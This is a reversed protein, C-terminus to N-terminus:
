PTGVFTPLSSCLFAANNRSQIAQFSVDVRIGDTQAANNNGSGNCSFGTGLVLPTSSGNGNQVVPTQTLTGFCWAKGVYSTSGGVLPVTTSADAIAHWQGQFTTSAAGSLSSIVTENTEFVNDGDDKWFTFNLFNQLEGITANTTTSDGADIEPDVISNEPTATIKAAM